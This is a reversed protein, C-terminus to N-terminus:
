LHLSQLKFISARPPSWSIEDYEDDLSSSSSVTILFRPSSDLSGSCCGDVFYSSLCLLSGSCVKLSFHCCCCCSAEVVELTHFQFRNLQNMMSKWISLNEELLIIIAGTKNLSRVYMAKNELMRRGSLKQRQKM